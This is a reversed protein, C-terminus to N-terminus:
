WSSLNASCAKYISLVLLHSTHSLGANVRLKRAREVLEPIWKRAEGVFLACPLAMCRQGAAGLAAGAMQGLSFEKNADPM